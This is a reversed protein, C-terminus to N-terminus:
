EEKYKALENLLGDLYNKLDDQESYSYEYKKSDYYYYWGNAPCEYTFQKNEFTIEGEPPPSDYTCLYVFIGSERVYLEIWFKWPNFLLEVVNEGTLRQFKIQLKQFRQLYEYVDPCQKIFLANCWQSGENMITRIKELKFIDENNLQNMIEDAKMYKFNTGTLCEFFEIYQKIMPTNESSELWKVIDEADFDICLRKVEECADTYQFSKKSKYFPMYVIKEIQYDDKTGNYYDNLQGERDPADNLKNEIIVAHHKKNDDKWSIFIDIRGGNVTKETEVSVNSLTEHSVEIQKLFTELPASGLNHNVSPDLLGALLKSHLVEKGHVDQFAIHLMNFPTPDSQIEVDKLKNLLEKIDTM